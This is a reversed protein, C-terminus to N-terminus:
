PNYGRDLLQHYMPVLLQRLRAPRKYHAFEQPVKFEAQIEKITKGAMIMKSMEDRIVVWYRKQEELDAVGRGVHVPGHGPVYTDVPLKREMVRDLVEIWRRPNSFFVM